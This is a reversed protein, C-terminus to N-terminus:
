ATATSSTPTPRAPKASSRGSAKEDAKADAKKDEPKAAEDATAPPVSARKAIAALHKIDVIGSSEDMADDTLAPGPRVSVPPPPVSASSGTRSPRMLAALGELDDENDQDNSQSM